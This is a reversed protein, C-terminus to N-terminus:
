LRIFGGLVCTKARKSEQVGELSEPVPVWFCFDQEGLARGLTRVPVEGLRLM